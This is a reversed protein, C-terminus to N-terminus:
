HSVLALIRVSAHESSVHDIFVSISEVFFSQKRSNRFINLYEIQEIVVIFGDDKKERQKEKRISIM